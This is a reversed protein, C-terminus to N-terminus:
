LVGAPYAVVRGELWGYMRVYLDNPPPCGHTRFNAIALRLMHELFFLLAECPPEDGYVALLEAKGGDCLWPDGCARCTWRPPSPLHRM